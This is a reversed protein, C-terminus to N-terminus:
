MKLRIEEEIKQAEQLFVKQFDPLYKKVFEEKEKQSGSSLIKEIKPKEGDPALLYANKFVRGLILCFIKEALEKNEKFVNKLFDEDM